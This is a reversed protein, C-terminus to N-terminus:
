KKNKYFIEDEGRRRKRSSEEIKLIWEHLSNSNILKIPDKIILHFKKDTQCFNQLSDDDNLIKKNYTIIQDNIAIYFKKYILEKLNEVKTHHLELTTNFCYFRTVDLGTPTKEKRPYVCNVGVKM